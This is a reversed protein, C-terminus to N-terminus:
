FPRADLYAQAIAWVEKDSAPFEEDALTQIGHNLASFFAVGARFDEEVAEAQPLYTQPFEKLRAARNERDDSVEDDDFFTRIAIGLAIDPESLFPLRDKTLKLDHFSVPGLPEVRGRALRWSIM